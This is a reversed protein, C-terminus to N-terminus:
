HDSTGIGTIEPYEKKSFFARIEGTELDIIKLESDIQTDYLDRQETFIINGDKTWTPNRNAHIGSTFEEFITGELDTVIIKFRDFEDQNLYSATFLKLSDNWDFDILGRKWLGDINIYKLFPNKIRNIYEGQQSMRYYALSDFENSFIFLTDAGFLSLPVIANPQAEKLINAKKTELDYYFVSQLGSFAQAPNTFYFGDSKKNWVVNISEHGTLPFNRTGILEYLLQKKGTRTNYLGLQPASGLGTEYKDTYILKEEDPSLRLNNYSATDSTLLKFEKPNDYNIAIIGQVPAGNPNTREFFVNAYVPNDITLEKEKDLLGCSIFLLSAVVLTIQLYTKLTNM